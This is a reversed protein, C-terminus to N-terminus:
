WSVKEIKQQCLLRVHNIRDGQYKVLAGVAISKPPCISSGNQAAGGNQSGCRGFSGVGIFNRDVCDGALGDTDSGTYMYISSVFGQNPCKCRSDNMGPGGGGGGGYRGSVSQNTYSGVMDRCQFTISDWDNGTRSDFATLGYGDPCNFVSHTNGAANRGWTTDSAWVTIAKTDTSSTKSCSLLKTTGSPQPSQGTAMGVNVDFDIITDRSVTMSIKRAVVARLIGVDSHNDSDPYNPGPTVTNNMILKLTKIQIKGFGSKDNSGPNNAGNFKKLTRKDGAQNSFYLSIDLGETNVDDVDKKQFTVPTTPTGSPGDGAMSIRCYREDDLIMRISNRLEMEESKAQTNTQVDNTNKVFQMFSLTLGGMLGAGVLVQVLSFGKENQFM